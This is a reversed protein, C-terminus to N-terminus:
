APVTRNLRPRSPTFGGTGSTMSRQGRRGLYVPPLRLIPRKLVPPSGSKLPDAKGLVRVIGGYADAGCAIALQGDPTARIDAQGSRMSEILAKAAEVVLAKLVNGQQTKQLVMGNADNVFTRNATDAGSDDDIRTLHGNADYHNTTTRV